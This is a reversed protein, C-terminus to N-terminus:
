MSTNLDDLLVGGIAQAAEQIRLAAKAPTTQPESTPTASAQSPSPVVAAKAHANAAATVYSRSPQRVSLLALRRRLTLSHRGPSLLQPHASCRLMSSFQAVRWDKLTLRDSGGNREYRSATLSARHGDAGCATTPHLESRFWMHPLSGNSLLDHYM